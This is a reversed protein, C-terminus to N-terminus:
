SADLISAYGLPGIRLPLFLYFHPSPRLYLASFLNASSRVAVHFHPCVSAHLLPPILSTVFSFSARTDYEAVMTREWGPKCHSVDITARPDPPPLSPTLM